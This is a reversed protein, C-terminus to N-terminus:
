FRLRDGKEKRAPSRSPLRCITCCQDAAKLLHEEERHIEAWAHTRRFARRREREQWAQVFAVITAIVIVAALASLIWFLHTVVGLFVMGAVVVITWLIASAPVRLARFAAIRDHWKM